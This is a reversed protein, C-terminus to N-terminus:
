LILLIKVKVQRPLNQSESDLPINIKQSPLWDSTATKDKQNQTITKGIFSESKSKPRSKMKVKWHLILKEDHSDPMATKQQAALKKKQKITKVVFSESKLRFEAWVKWHLILREAHSDPMATKPWAALFNYGVTKNFESKVKVIHDTFSESKSTPRSKVKVKWHLILREAHSDPM